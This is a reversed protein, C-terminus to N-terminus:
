QGSPRKFFGVVGGVCFVALVELLLRAYDISPFKYRGAAEGSFLFYHGVSATMGNPATAQWPLFFVIGTAILTVVVLIRNQVLSFRDVGRIKLCPIIAEQELKPAQDTDV